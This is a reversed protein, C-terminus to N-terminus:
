SLWTYPKGSDQTRFTQHLAHQADRREGALRGRKEWPTNVQPTKVDDVGV